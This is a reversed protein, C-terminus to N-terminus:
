LPHYLRPVWYDLFGLLPFAVMGVCRELAMIWDPVNQHLDDQLLSVMMMPVVGLLFVPAFAHARLAHTWHERLLLVVATSFVCGPCLVGLVEQVPCPWDAPM